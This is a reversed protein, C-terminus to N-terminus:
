LDCPLSTFVPWNNYYCGEDECSEECMELVLAACKAQAQAYTMEKPPKHKALGAICGKDNHAMGPAVRRCEKNGGKDCCQAAITKGKIKTVASAPDICTSDPSKGAGGDLVLM